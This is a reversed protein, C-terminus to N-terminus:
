TSLYAKCPLEPVQFFRPSMKAILDRFPVYRIVEAHLLLQGRKRGPGKEPRLALSPRQPVRQTVEM